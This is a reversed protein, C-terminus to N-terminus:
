LGENQRAIKTAAHRRDVGPPTPLPLTRRWGQLEWSARICVCTNDAPTPHRRLAVTHFVSQSDAMGSRRVAVVTALSGVRTLTTDIGPSLMSARLSLGPWAAPALM